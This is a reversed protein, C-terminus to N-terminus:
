GSKWRAWVKNQVGMQMQCTKKRKSCSCSGLYQEGILFLIRWEYSWGLRSSWLSRWLNRSWSKRSSSGILFLSKRVLFTYTTSRCPWKCSFRICGSYLPGMNSATSLFSINLLHLCIKIRTTMMQVLLFAIFFILYLSLHCMNHRILSAPWLHCVRRVLSVLRYIKM